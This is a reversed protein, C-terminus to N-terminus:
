PSFRIRFEKGKREERVKYLFRAIADQEVLGCSNFHRRVNSALHDKSVRGQVLHSQHAGPSMTRHLAYVPMNYNPANKTKLGAGNSFEKEKRLGQLSYQDHGNTTSLRRTNHHNGLESKRQHEARQARRAAIATPSQLGIGQSLYIQAIQSGYSSPCQLNYAYRYDHLVSIPMSSWDVQHQQQQQKQQQQTQPQPQQQQQQPDTATGSAANNEAAAAKAASSAANKRSRSTTGSKTTSTVTGDAKADDVAAATRRPPAM